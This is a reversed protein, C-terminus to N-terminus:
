ASSMAPVSTPADPAIRVWSMHLGHVARDEVDEEGPETGAAALRGGTGLALLLQALDAGLIGGDQHRVALAHDDHGAVAHGHCLRLARNALEHVQEDGPADVDLEGDVRDGSAHGAVHVDEQGLRVHRVVPELLHVLDVVVEGIGVHREDDAGVVDDVREARSSPEGILPM